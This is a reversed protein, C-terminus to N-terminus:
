DEKLPVWKSNVIIFNQYQWVKVIYSKFYWLDVFNPQLNLNMPENPQQCIDELGSFQSLYQEIIRCMFTRFDVKLNFDIKFLFM